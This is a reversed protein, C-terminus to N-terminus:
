TEETDESFSVGVLFLWEACRGVTWLSVMAGYRLPHALAEQAWRLKGGGQKHLHNKRKALRKEWCGARLGSLHDAWAAGIRRKLVIPM